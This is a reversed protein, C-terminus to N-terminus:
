KKWIVSIGTLIESYEISTNTTKKIKTKDM